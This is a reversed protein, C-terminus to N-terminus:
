LPRKRTRRKTPSYRKRYYVGVGYLLRQRFIDKERADRPHWLGLWKEVQRAVRSWPLRARGWQHLLEHWEELRQRMQPLAQHPDIIGERASIVIYDAFEEQLQELTRLWLPIDAEALFPPERLVVADGVFLVKVHPLEVWSAGVSPGPRYHIHVPADGLYLTLRQHFTVHIHPWRVQGLAPCFEWLEGRRENSRLYNAHQQFWPPVDEHAVLTGTIVSAGLTRDPNQDLLVVIRDPFGGNMARIAHQWAQASDPCPPTDVLLLGRALVALGLVPGPYREELYVHNAIERM